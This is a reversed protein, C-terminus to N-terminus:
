EPCLTAAFVEMERVAGTTDGRALARYARATRALVRAGLLVAQTSSDTRVVSDSWAITRSLALTDRQAAWFPEATSLVGWAGQDM